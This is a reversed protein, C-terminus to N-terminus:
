ASASVELPHQALRHAAAAAAAAVAAAASAHASPVRRRSRAELAMETGEHSWDEIEQLVVHRVRVEVIATGLAVVSRPRFPSEPVVDVGEM